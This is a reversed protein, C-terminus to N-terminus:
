GHLADRIGGDGVAARYRLQVIPKYEIRTCRLAVATRRPGSGDPHRRSAMLFIAAYKRRARSLYAWSGDLKRRERPTRRNMGM